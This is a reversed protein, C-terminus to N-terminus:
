HHVSHISEILLKIHQLKNNKRLERVLQQQHKDLKRNGSDVMGNLYGHYFSRSYLNASPLEESKLGSMYGKLCENEDINDYDEITDIRKYESM